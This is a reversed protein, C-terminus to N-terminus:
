KRLCVNNYKYIRRSWAMEERWGEGLNNGCVGSLFEHSLKVPGLHKSCCLRSPQPHPLIWYHMHMMSNAAQRKSTQRESKTQEGARRIAQKGVRRMWLRSRRSVFLMGMETRRTKRSNEEPEDRSTLAGSPERKRARTGARRLLKYFAVTGHGNRDQQRVQGCLDESWLCCTNGSRDSKGVAM